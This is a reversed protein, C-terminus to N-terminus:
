DRCEGAYSEKLPWGDRDERLEHARAPGLFKALSREFGDGLSARFRWFREIPPLARVKGPPPPLSIGAREKAIARLVEGGANPDTTVLTEVKSLLENVNTSPTVGGGAAQHLEQLEHVVEETFASAASKVAAQENPPLVTWGLAGEMAASLNPMDIRVIACRAMGRLMESSPSLFPCDKDNLTTMCRIEREHKQRDLEASLDEIRKRLVPTEDFVPPRAPAPRAKTERFSGSSLPSTEKQLPVESSPSSMSRLARLLLFGTFLLAILLIALTFRKMMM